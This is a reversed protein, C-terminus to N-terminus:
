DNNQVPAPSSVESAGAGYFFYLPFTTTAAPVPAINDSTVITTSAASSATAKKTVVYKKVPATPVDSVPTSTPVGTNTSTAVVEEIMIDGDKVDNFDGNGWAYGIFIAILVLIATAIGQFHSKLYVLVKEQM